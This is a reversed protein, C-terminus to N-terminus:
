GKRKGGGERVKREMSARAGAAETATQNEPINDRKSNSGLFKGTSKEKALIEPQPRQKGYFLGERREKATKKL